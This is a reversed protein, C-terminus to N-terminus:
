KWLRSLRWKKGSPKRYLSAACKGSLLASSCGLDCCWPIRYQASGISPFPFSKGTNMIVFPQDAPWIVVTKDVIRSYEGDCSVTFGKNKTSADYRLEMRFFHAVTGVFDCITELDNRPESCLVKVARMNEADIDLCDMVIFLPAAFKSVLQLTHLQALELPLDFTEGGLDDWSLTRQHPLDLCELQTAHRLFSLFGGFTSLSFGPLTHLSLHTLLPSALTASTWPISVGRLDLCRLNPTGSLFLKSLELGAGDVVLELSLLQRAPESTGQLLSSLLAREFFLAGPCCLSLSRLRGIGARLVNALRDERDKSREISLHRIELDLDLPLKKANTQMLTFLEPKMKQTVQIHSWLEQSSFAINRWYQCVHSLRLVDPPGRQQWAKFLYKGSFTTGIFSKYIRKYPNIMLAPTHEEDQSTTLSAWFIRSLVELPPRHVPALSNRRHNLQGKFDEFEKQSLTITETHGTILHPMQGDIFAQEDRWCSAM